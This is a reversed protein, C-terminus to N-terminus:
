PSSTYRKTTNRVPLGSVIRLFSVWLGRCDRNRDPTGLSSGMEFVDQVVKSGRVAYNGLSTLGLRRTPHLSAYGHSLNFRLEFYKCRSGTGLGSAAFPVGEICIGREERFAIM